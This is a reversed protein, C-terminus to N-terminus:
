QSPQSATATMALVPANTMIAGTAFLVAERIASPDHRSNGLARAMISGVAHFGSEREQQQHHDKGAARVLLM